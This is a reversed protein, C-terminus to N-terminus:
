ATGGSPTKLSDPDALGDLLGHRELFTWARDIRGVESLADHTDNGITLRQNKLLEPPFRNWFWDNRTGGPIEIAVKQLRLMEFLGPLPMKKAWAELDPHAIIVPVRCLRRIRGLDKLELGGVHGEGIYEFLIYDLHNLDDWPLDELEMGLRRPCGDIEIGIWIKLPGRSADRAAFTDELYRPWVTDLWIHVDLGRHVKGTFFHDSIGVGELGAEEAARIIDAVTHAGDSHQTHNHLNHKKRVM